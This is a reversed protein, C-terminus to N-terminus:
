PFNDDLLVTGSAYPIDYFNILSYIQIKGRLRAIILQLVMLQLQSSAVHWEQSLELWPLLLLTIIISNMVVVLLIKITGFVTKPEEYVNVGKTKM